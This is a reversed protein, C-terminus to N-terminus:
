IEPKGLTDIQKQKTQQTKRLHQLAKPKFGQLVEPYCLFAKASTRRFYIELPLTLNWVPGLRTRSGPGTTKLTGELLMQKKLDIKKLSKIRTVNSDKKSTPRKRQPIM